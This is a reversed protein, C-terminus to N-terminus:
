DPRFLFSCLGTQEDFAPRNWNGSEPPAPNASKIGSRWTIRCSPVSSSIPSEVFTLRDMLRTLRSNIWAWVLRPEFCRLLYKRINGTPFRSRRVPWSLKLVQDRFISGGSFYGSVEWAKLKAFQNTRWAGVSAM